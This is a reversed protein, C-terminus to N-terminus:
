VVINNKIVNDSAGSISIGTGNNNTINNGIIRNDGSGSLLSVGGDDTGVIKNDLVENDTAPGGFGGGLTIGGGTVTNDSDNAGNIFAVGENFVNYQFTLGNSDTVRTRRNTITNNEVVTGTLNGNVFDIGYDNDTSTTDKITLNSVKSNTVAGGFSEVGKEWDLIVANTVTVNDVDTFDGLYM